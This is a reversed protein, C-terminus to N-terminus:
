ESRWDTSRETGVITSGPVGAIHHHTVYTGVSLRLDRMPVFEAEVKNSLTNYDGTSKGFRATLRSQIEKDGVEGVSTGATFGFHYEAEDNAYVLTPVVALVAALSVTPFKTTM